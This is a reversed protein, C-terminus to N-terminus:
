PAHFPVITIVIKVKRLELRVGWNNVLTVRRIDSTSFFTSVKGPNLPRFFPPNNINKSNTLM